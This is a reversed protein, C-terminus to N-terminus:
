REQDGASRRQFRATLPDDGTPMQPPLPRAAVVESLRSDGNVDLTGPRVVPTGGLGPHWMVIAYAGDPLELRAVGAADTVGFYPSDAVFVYGRMWDHINCGLTIVGPRDFVVTPVEEGSYLRVEFRKAESFSYIHHRMRDRNPFSVRAGAAVVTVAPNFSQGQQVVAAGAAPLPVPVVGIPRAVVVTDALTTGDPSTVTVELRAAAAPASALGLITLIAFVAAGSPACRLARVM